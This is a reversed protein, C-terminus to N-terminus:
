EVWGLLLLLFPFPFSFTFIFSFSQFLACAKRTKDKEIFRWFMDRM